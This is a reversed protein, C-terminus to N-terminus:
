SQTRYLFAYPRTIGRWCRIIGRAMRQAQSARGYDLPFVLFGADCVVGPKKTPGTASVTYRRGSFGCVLIRAGGPGSRESRAGIGPQDAHFTRASIAQGDTSKLIGGEPAVRIMTPVPPPM